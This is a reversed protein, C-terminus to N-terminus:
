VKIRALALQQIRNSACVAVSHLLLLILILLQMPNMFQDTSSTRAVTADAHMEAHFSFLAEQVVTEIHIVYLLLM